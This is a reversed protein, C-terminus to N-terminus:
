TVSIGDPDDFRPLLPPPETFCCNTWRRRRRSCSCRRIGRATRMEWNEKAKFKGRAPVDLQWGEAVYVIFASPQKSPKGGKLSGLGRNYIDGEELNHAKMQERWAGYKRTPKPFKVTHVISEHRESSKWRKLITGEDRVLWLHKRGQHLETSRDDINWWPWNFTTLGLHQVTEQFMLRLNKYYVQGDNYTMGPDDFDENVGCDPCPFSVDVPLYEGKQPHQKRGFRKTCSSCAPANYVPIAMCVEGAVKDRNFMLDGKYKVKPAIKPSFIPSLDVFTVWKGPFHHKIYKPCDYVAETVPGIIPSSCFNENEYSSHSIDWRLGKCGPHCKERRKRKHIGPSTPEVVLACEKGDSRWLIMAGKASLKKAEEVTLYHPAPATAASM